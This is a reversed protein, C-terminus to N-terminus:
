AERDCAIPRRSLLLDVYGSGNMAHPLGPSLKGRRHVVYIKFDRQLFFDILTSPDFGM